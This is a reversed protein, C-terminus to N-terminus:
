ITMSSFSRAAIDLDMSRTSSLWYRRRGRPARVYGAGVIDCVTKYMYHSPGTFHPSILLAHCASLTM